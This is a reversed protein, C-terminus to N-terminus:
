SSCKTGSPTDYVLFLNKILYHSKATTINGYVAGGSLVTLNHCSNCIFRFKCHSLMVSNHKDKMHGNIMTHPLCDEVQQNLCWTRKWRTAESDGLHYLDRWLNKFRVSLYLTFGSAPSQLPLEQSGLVIPLDQQTEPISSSDYHACLVSHHGGPGACLKTSPCTQPQSKGANLSNQVLSAANENQEPGWLNCICNFTRWVLFSIGSISLAWVQFLPKM